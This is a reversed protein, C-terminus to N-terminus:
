GDFDYSQLLSSSVFSIKHYRTSENTQLGQSTEINMTM